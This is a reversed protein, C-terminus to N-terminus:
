RIVDEQYCLTHKKLTNKQKVTNKEARYLYWKRWDQCGAAIMCRGKNSCKHCPSIESNMWDEKQYEEM